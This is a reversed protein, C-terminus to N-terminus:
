SVEQIMNVVRCISRVGQQMGARKNYPKDAEDLPVCFLLTVVRDRRTHKQLITTGTPYWAWNHRNSM